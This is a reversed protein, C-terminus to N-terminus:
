TMAEIQKAVHFYDYAGNSSKNYQFITKGASPAEALAINMRVPHLIAIQGLNKRIEEIISQALKTHNNYFTPIIGKLKIQPNYTKKVFRLVQIMEALAELSLFHAQMPIIVETAAILASITLLSLTPSCDIIIYDFRHQEARLRDAMITRYSKDGGHRREYESLKRSAPIIRLRSIYTEMMVDAVVKGDGLLTCLDEKVSSQPIGLSLTAHAQPDADVVLVKKGLHALAASINVTTTTKGTGGKRNSFAIIRGM